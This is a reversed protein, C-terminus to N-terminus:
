GFLRITRLLFMKLFKVIRQRWESKKAARRYDWSGGGFTLFHWNNSPEKDLRQNDATQKM